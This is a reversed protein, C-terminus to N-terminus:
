VLWDRIDNQSALEKKLKAVERRLETIKKDKRELRMTLAKVTATIETM